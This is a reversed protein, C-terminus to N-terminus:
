KRRTSQLQRTFAEGLELHQFLLINDNYTTVGPSRCLNRRLNGRTHPNMQSRRPVLHVSPTSKLKTTVRWWGSKQRTRSPTARRFCPVTSNKLHKLLQNGDSDSGEANENLSGLKIDHKVKISKNCMCWWNVCTHPITQSPQEFATSIYNNVLKWPHIYILLTCIRTYISLYSALIYIDLFMQVNSSKLHIAELSINFLTEPLSFYM